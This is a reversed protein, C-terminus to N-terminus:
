SWNWLYSFSGKNGALVMLSTPVTENGALTSNSSAKLKNFHTIVFPSLLPVLTILAITIKLSISLAEFKRLCSSNIKGEEQSKSKPTAPTKRTGENEEKSEFSENRNIKFQM